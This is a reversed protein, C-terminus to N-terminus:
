LVIARGIAIREGLNDILEVWYIGKGNKRLDVDMRTYPATNPFNNTQIRAGKDDYINMGRPARNNAPAYYRVQFTGNSPNPYIFVKGSASDSIALINSNNVCGNVDTVRLRYDGLQDVNVPLTSTTATLAVNDRTWAYSAAAPTSTSNITTSLGPMLKAPNASINVSPLPNVTITAASDSMKSGCPAAGNIMVRYRSGSLSVSPSTVTLTNTTVGSYPAANALNSWTTAGTPRVQWQYTFGTGATVVTFTTVKDACVVKSVPQTVIRVSDNLTVTLTRTPSICGTQPKNFFIEWGGAVSGADGAFDDVIFLKWDGNVNATSGLSALTPTAQNVTGPGPAPFDDSAGNNTPAYKGSPNAATTSMAPSGDAFTYTVSTVAINSGVDSMLVVNQGTPSQMLVDNDECWTHSLGYIKVSDVSVGTIPYNLARVVSPYLSAPGVTNIVIPSTNASKIPLSQVSATYNYTGATAPSVWVSDIAQGTYATTGAANTFLGAVPSWVAATAPTGVAYNIKIEWSTLNGVDPAGADYAALTWNGNPTATANNLFAAWSTVTPDFGVPGGSLIFGFANFTVGARDAGFTGTFPATGAAMSNVADSSVVTNVFNAGANNTFGGLAVLNIVAGGPSKLVIVNDLVFGHTINMKVDISTVIANAPIGTTSIVHSAATTPRAPFAGEPIPVNITGSASTNSFLTSTSSKVLVPANGLCMTIPNPTVTPAPPTYNVTITNTNSCGTIPNTGTVTYTTLTAPAAFVVQANTGAVYPITATANLFLGNAPSWTFTLPTAVTGPTTYLVTLEWNTLTGLDAPGGDYMALTWAGNANAATLASVFNAASTETPINGNPGSPPNATPAAADSSFNGSFPNVGAGLAGFTTASNIVTNVMGTTVANGGTGSLFYDINVIKNNPAKLAFVMDGVWTHPMNLKVRYGTITANAPIGAITLATTVGAPNNDPIALNLTASSAVVVSGPVPPPASGVELRTGSIGPVGGCVVPGAPTIPLIPLANVTLKAAMSNTPPACFGSVVCRYRNNNILGIVPSITLNATNAGAYPAGNSINNWVTPAAATAEQWQFTFPGAGNAAITFRVIGGDCAVADIPQTGITAPQNVTVTRNAVGQCGNALTVLAAYTTTTMPAAAVPNSAANSLGLTPSWLVTTGAPLPTTASSRGILTFLLNANAAGGGIGGCTTGYNWGVTCPTGFGAGPNTWAYPNGQVAGGFNGWFWQGNGTFPMNVVVSLWYRGPTLDIPANALDVVFGAANFTFQTHNLRSYVVTGPLNTASNAFVVVNLSQPVGAANTFIGPIVLSSLNWTTGAPVAFDDAAANDFAANLPEFNQSPVGNVRAATQSLVTGLGSSTGSQATLITGDGLCINGSPLATVTVPGMTSASPTVTVTGSNGSGICCANNANTVSVLTYVTAASPTVPIFAGSVYNPVTFNGGPAANIVVNYAPADGGTIDVKLNVTSGICTNPASFIQTTLTVDDLGIFDSNAGTGGDEVFYRFAVRGAVGAPPLGSLTITFQTWATPYGTGTYTPNIDLLLNTFDGVSTNTAGVNVSAGNTSMRVQMRDPFTGTTTRTFFRLVDGNKLTVNPSFLWNSITGAGSIANFNSAIYSGTNGPFVVPNGVFWTPAAGVPTSLNQQAWGAPLVTNFTENITLSTGTSILQQSLVSSTPATCPDPQGNCTLGDVEVTYSPTEQGATAQNILFIITDNAPAIFSFTVNTGAVTSSGGGDALWNNCIAAPNFTNRYATVFVNGTANIRYRVTVCKAECTANFMKVTDFLFNVTGFPAGCTRPAACQTAIGSRFPRGNALTRDGTVLGGNFTCLAEVLNSSNGLNSIGAGSFSASIAGVSAVPKGIAARKDAKSIPTQATAKAGGNHKSPVTSTQQLAANMLPVDNARDHVSSTNSFKGAPRVDQGFLNVSVSALFLVSLITKLFIVKFSSKLTATKQM